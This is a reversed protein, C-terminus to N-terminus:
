FPGDNTSEITPTDEVVVAVTENDASENESQSDPAAAVIAQLTAVASAIAASANKLKEAPDPDPEPFAAADVTFGECTAATYKIPTKGRMPKAGFGAVKLIGHKGLAAVGVADIARGNIKVGCDVFQKATGTFTVKEFM